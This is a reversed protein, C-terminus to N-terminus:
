QGALLAASFAAPDDVMPFHGCRPLMLLPSNPLLARFRAIGEGVPGNEGFVLSVPCAMSAVGSATAYDRIAWMVDLMQWAGAKSRDFNWRQHFAPPLDNFRPATEEYSQVPLAFTREVFDWRADWWDPDRFPTEVIVARAVRAPFRAAIDVAITGGVSSGAIVARELGLADMFAVLADTYREIPVHALNRDSDGHGPMDWAIVRHREALAAICYQYEWASCGNSHLLLLPQGAGQELFHIRGLATSAFRQRIEPHDM